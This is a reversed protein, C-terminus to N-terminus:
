KGPEFLDAPKQPLSTFTYEDIQFARRQMLGNIPAKNDSSTIFVYVPGAPVDPKKEEPKRGMSVVTTQGKFSTIRVMRLHRKAAGVQPDALDSTDTFRLAGLSALLSSVADANVTRAAPAPGATWPGEKATRAVTVSAGQDFGVEMSAVDDSKLDLLQANAWDRPEVDLSLNPSALYAKDEGDFRVFRGGSDPSKGLTASWLARGAADLFEIRTDKFELRAMRDPNATVLRQIRAAVLDGAFSSLKAFDAPLDFYSTDRWSGDGARTLLITRGQDSLRVVAAKEIAAPDGLPKGVRPDPAAPSQARNAWFAIASLVALVAVAVVLAKLKMAYGPKEAGPLVM